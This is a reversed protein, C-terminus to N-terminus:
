IVEDKYNESMQITAKESAGRTGDALKWNLMASAQRTLMLTEAQTLTWAIDAEGIIAESLDHEIITQGDQVITLYALALDSVQITSFTYKITPTTGRIITAM